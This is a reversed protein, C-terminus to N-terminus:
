DDPRASPSREPSRPSYSGAHQNNSPASSIRAREHPHNQLSGMWKPLHPDWPIWWTQNSQDKIGYFRNANYSSYNTPLTRCTTMFPRVPYWGLPKDRDLILDEQLLLAVISWQSHQWTWLRDWYGTRRHERLNRLLLFFSLDLFHSLEKLLQSTSRGYHGESITIPRIVHLLTKFLCPLPLSLFPHLNCGILSLFGWLLDRFHDLLGKM